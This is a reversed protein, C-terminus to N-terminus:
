LNLFVENRKPGEETRSWHAFFEDWIRWSMEPMTAHPFYEVQTYRLVPQGDSNEYCLDLWRGNHRTWCNQFRDEAKGPLRNRSHWLAITKGTANDM